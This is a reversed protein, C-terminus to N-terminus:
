LIIIITLSFLVQTQTVKSERHLRSFLFKNLHAFSQELGRFVLPIGTEAGDSM